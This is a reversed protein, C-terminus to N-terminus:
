RRHWVQTEDSRLSGDLNFFHVFQLVTKGDPLLADLLFARGTPLTVVREFMNVDFRRAITKTDPASPNPHEMADFRLLESRKRVGGDIRYQIDEFALGGDQETFTMEVSKLVEPKDIRSKAIDLDWTGAFPDAARLMGSLLLLTALIRM